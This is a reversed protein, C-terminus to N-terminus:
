AASEDGGANEFSVFQGPLVKVGGIMMTHAMIVHRLPAAEQGEEAAAAESVLLRDPLLYLHVQERDEVESRRREQIAIHDSAAKIREVWMTAEGPSDFTIEYLRNITQLRLEGGDAWVGGSCETLALSNQLTSHDARDDKHWELRGTRLVFFRRKKRGLINDGKKDGWGQHLVVDAQTSSRLRSGNCQKM